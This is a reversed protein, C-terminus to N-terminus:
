PEKLNKHMKKWNRYARVAILSFVTILVILIGSEVRKIKRVIVDLQDGFLYVVSIIAPASILAAMSDYFLFVRFPLHLTGASFYVPARLGPMFRAAFILKNGQKHFRTKVAELREPSLIRKFFWRKTLKRGYHAGLWFIMCDGIMIGAFCVGMMLFVNTVGYYSIIGAAILTLDEPIPVGLGCGFLIVFVIYYPMPGYFNLFIDVLQDM